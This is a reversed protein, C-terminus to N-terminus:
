RIEYTKFPREGKGICEGTLSKKNVKKDKGGTRQSFARSKGGGIRRERTHNGQGKESAGSMTGLDKM